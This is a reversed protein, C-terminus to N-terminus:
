EWGGVNGTVDSNMDVGPGATIDRKKSGNYAYAVKGNEASNANDITSGGQKVFTGQSYVGGGYSASNVPSSSTNGSITGGSMIFTGKDAVYVGGGYSASNVASSSTNGNITGGSMTFVGGADVYVGGGYSSYSSLNSSATNGSITGDSMTFTGSADVYVGGGYSSYNLAAAATNGSITGGSMTFVGGKISIGSISAGMVQSGENMKLEGGSLVSVVPYKKSNGNLMINTDLVLTVGKQLTFLASNGSNSLIRNPSDGRIVITKARNPALEVGDSVFSGTFVITYDGDTSDDNIDKIAQKFTTANSASLWTRGRAKESPTAGGANVAEVWVYYIKGKTLDTITTRTETLHSKGPAPDAPMMTEDTGCYVNYSAADVKEWSVDLSGIGAILTPAPPPKLSLTRAFASASMKKEDASVAEVWVYYPTDNALRSIIARTETLGSQAPSTPTTEDTSYYVNYSKAMAAASWDVTLIGAGGSVSPKAPAQLSLTTASVPESLITGRENVAEVWVYYITANDLDTIDVSPGTVRQKPSGPTQEDKSWYVNYSMAKEVRDWSVSLSGSGENVSPARLRGLTTASATNLTKTSASEKNLVKGANNLAEVRVLYTTNDKLGRITTSTESLVHQKPSKLQNEDTGCYVNYSAAKEVPKWSVDLSAINATVTPPMPVFMIPSSGCASFGSVITLVISIAIGYQKM